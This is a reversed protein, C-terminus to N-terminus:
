YIKKIKLNKSNIMTAAGYLAYLITLENLEKM